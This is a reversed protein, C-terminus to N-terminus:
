RPASKIRATFDAAITDMGQPMRSASFLMVTFEMARYHYRAIRLLTAVSVKWRKDRAICGSTSLPRTADGVKERNDRTDGM